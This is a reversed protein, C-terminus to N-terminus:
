AKRYELLIQSTVEKLSFNGTKKIKKTANFSRFIATIHKSITENSIKNKLCRDRLTQADFTEKERIIGNFIDIMKQKQEFSSNAKEENLKIKAMSNIVDFQNLQSFLDKPCRLFNPRV